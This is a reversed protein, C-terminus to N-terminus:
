FLSGRVKPLSPGASGTHVSCCECGGFCTNTLQNVLLKQSSATIWHSSVPDQNMLTQIIEFLKKFFNNRPDNTWLFNPSGWNWDLSLQQNEFIINVCDLEVEMCEHGTSIWATWPKRNNSKNNYEGRGIGYAITFLLHSYCQLLADLPVSGLCLHFSPLSHFNIKYSYCLQDLCVPSAFKHFAWSM